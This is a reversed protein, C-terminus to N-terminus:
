SRTKYIILGFIIIGVGVIYKNSKKKPESIEVYEKTKNYFGVDELLKYGATLEEDEAEYSSYLENRNDIALYNDRILLDKSREKNGLYYDGYNYGNDLLFDIIEILNDKDNIKIKRYNM